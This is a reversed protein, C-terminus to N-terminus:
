KARYAAMFVRVAISVVLKIREESPPPAFNFLVPKFLTGQCTEMFQAAAIEPEEVTLVGAETQAKLYAALKAIGKSPGTEYFQRGISPMRDAIAIVTRLASAKEPRCLFHIYAIGLRTLTSEVDPDSPDLDFLGEAQVTCELLVIAGFLEEKDKFYVYLTGKSVGAAKAIDNMSAADFGRALFIQRAGEVIQRRKASDEATDAPRDLVLDTASM